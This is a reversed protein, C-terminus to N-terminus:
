INEQHISMTILQKYFPLPPESHMIHREENQANRDTDTQHHKAMTPRATKTLFFPIEKNTKRDEYNLSIEGVTGDKKEFAREFGEWREGEPKNNSQTYKNEIDNIM